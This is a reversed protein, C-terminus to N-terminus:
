NQGDTDDSIIWQNIKEKISEMLSTQYVQTEQISITITIQM